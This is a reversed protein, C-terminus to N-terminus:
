RLSAFLHYLKCDLFVVDSAEVLPCEKNYYRDGSSFKNGFKSYSYNTTCKSCKLNIKTTPMPGNITFITVNTSEYVALGRGDCSANLCYMVPSCPIEM